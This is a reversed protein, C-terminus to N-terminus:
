GQKKQERNELDAPDAVAVEQEQQELELEYQKIIDEIEENSINERDSKSYITTLLITASTKTYYIIRYGGSKGRQANSNNVRVKYVAYKVGGIREGPLDGSELQQIVSKIDERILRYKKNLKKTEKEFSRSKIVRVIPPLKDQM